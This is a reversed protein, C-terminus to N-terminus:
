RALFHWGFWWWVILVTVRGVATVQAGRIARAFTVVHRRPWHVRGRGLLEAWTALGAIVLFGALSILTETM